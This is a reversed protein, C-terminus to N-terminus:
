TITNATKVSMDYLSSIIVSVFSSKSYKFAIMNLGLSIGNSSGSDLYKEHNCEEYYACYVEHSVAVQEGQVYIYYEKKTDGM